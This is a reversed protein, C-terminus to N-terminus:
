VLSSACRQQASARGEVTEVDPGIGRDQAALPDYHGSPDAGVRALDPLGDFQHQERDLGGLDAV